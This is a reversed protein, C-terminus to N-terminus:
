FESSQRTLTIAVDNYGAVSGALTGHMASGNVAGSFYVSFQSAVLHLSVDSPAVFAGEVDVSRTVSGSTTTGNGLLIGSEGVSHIAVTVTTSGATGSWTGNIANGVPTPESSGGCGSMVAFLVALALSKRTM